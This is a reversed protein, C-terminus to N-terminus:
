AQPLWEQLSAEITIFALNVGRVLHGAHVRGDTGAVMGYLQSPTGHAAEGVIEGNLSLVEVGPGDVTSLRGDAGALTADILSGLAGRLVARRVGHQRCLAELGEILDENPRLRAVLM